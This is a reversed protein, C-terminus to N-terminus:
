LNNAHYGIWGGNVYLLNVTDISAAATLLTPETGGATQWAITDGTATPWTVLRTGTGDQVLILCYSGGDIANSLTLTINGTLTLYHVNSEDCDVTTAGTVSSIKTLSAIQGQVKVPITNAGLNIEVTNTSGITIIGSSGLTGLGANISIDGGSLSGTGANISIDGGNNVGNSNGADITISGGHGSSTNNPVTISIATTPAVGSAPLSSAIAVTEGNLNTTVTNTAGITIIGGSGATGANITVNGALISGNGANITVNGGSGTMSNGGTLNIHGGFGSGTTNGGNINVVGAASSGTQAGGNINVAGAVGIDADSNAGGTINVAGGGASEGGEGATLSISGGGSFAQTSDGADISVGGGAGSTAVAVSIDVATAAAVGGASVGAKIEVINGTGVEIYTEETTADGDTIKNASIGGLATDM